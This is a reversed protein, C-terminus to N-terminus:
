NSGPANWAPRDRSIRPRFYGLWPWAAKKELDVEAVSVTGEREATAIERGYHDIVGSRMWYDEPPMYTSSVLYIHNEIARAAALTRHGGYIPLAIVEAGRNALQRAVEPFTVDYCVMMGVKGFRTRFVPYEDGPAVGGQVEGTPLATKRYKGIINGEPGLLVAANYVVHGDRELIGIVIHLNHKKALGAFYDTSPGPIPEAAEVMTHGNNIATLIEGLVIIDARQRAAEEILPAFMRCNDAPSKGGRPKFHAAALRVKRSPAADLETLSAESWAVRAGPAWRLHLHLAAAVAGAPARFAGSVETWGDPGAEGDSLCDPQMSVAEETPVPRGKANLWFIEANASRRPLAVNTTKRWVGFRYWRGATVPFERVWFGDLGARHDAAIMMAPGGGRGGTEEVAFAPRTEQRYADARWGSPVDATGPAACLLLVGAQLKSLSCRHGM